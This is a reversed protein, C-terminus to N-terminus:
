KKLDIGSQYLHVTLHGAAKIYGDLLEFEKKHDRKQGSLSADWIVTIADPIKKQVKKVTPFTNILFYYQGNVEQMSVEAADPTKPIIINFAGDPTYNKESVSSTFVKNLEEFKLHTNCDSGVEPIYNSAVTISFDFQKLPQTFHLPLLYAFSHDGKAPLLQEYGILVRRCGNAPIPYIRTRFNNGQVRELLGPDPNIRRREINEFVVQAKEKEVPVAERMKGNIDLAYRSVTVGEPMPFILEGELVRPATNCFEMEMITVAYNGIVKVETRLKTLSVNASDKPDIKLIPQQAKLSICILLLTATILKTPLRNM